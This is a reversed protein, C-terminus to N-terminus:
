FLDPRLKKVALHFAAKISPNQLNESLSKQRDYITSTRQIQTIAEQELVKDAHVWALIRKDEELFVAKKADHARQQKDLEKNHQAETRQKAVAQKQTQEEKQPTEKYHEQVAKVFFGALNDIKRTKRAKETVKIAERIDGETHVAVLQTLVKLGVGFQAVVIPFLDTILKEQEDIADIPLVTTAKISVPM